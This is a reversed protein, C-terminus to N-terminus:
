LHKLIRTKLETWKKPTVTRSKSRLGKVLELELQEQESRRMDERILGQVYANSTGRRVEKACREVYSKLKEPLTIAM